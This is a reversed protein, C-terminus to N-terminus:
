PRELYLVTREPREDWRGTVRFGRSALFPIVENWGWELVHASTSHRWALPTDRIPSEVYMRSVGAAILWDVLRVLQAALMHEIIHALVATDYRTDLMLEWAWRDPATACYRPDTPVSARVAEECVEYNDWRVMEPHASLSAAAAEGRWGGVELVSRADGSAFFGALLAASHYEQCPYVGWVRSHFAVLEAYSMAPYAARYADWDIMSM